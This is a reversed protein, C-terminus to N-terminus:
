GRREVFAPGPASIEHTAGPDGASAAPTLVPSMRTFTFSTSISTRKASCSGAALWVRKLRSMPRGALTTTRRSPRSVGVVTVGM